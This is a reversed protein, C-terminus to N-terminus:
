GVEALIVLIFVVNKMRLVVLRLWLKILIKLAYWRLCDHPWLEVILLCLLGGFSTDLHINGAMVSNWTRPNGAYRLFAVLPLHILM